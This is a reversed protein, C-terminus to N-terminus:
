FVRRVAFVELEADGNLYQTISSIVEFRPKEGTRFSRVLQDIDAVYPRVGVGSGIGSRSSITPSTGEEPRNGSGSAVSTDVTSSSVNGHIRKRTRENQDGHSM